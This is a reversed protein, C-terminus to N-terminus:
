MSALGILWPELRTPALLARHSQLAAWCSVFCAIVKAYSFVGLEELAIAYACPLFATLVRATEACSKQSSRQEVLVGM